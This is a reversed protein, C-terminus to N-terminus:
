PDTLQLDLYTIDHSSGLALKMVFNSRGDQKILDVTAALIQGETNSVADIILDLVLGDTLGTLHAKWSACVGEVDGIFPYVEVLCRMMEPHCPIPPGAYPKLLLNALRVPKIFLGTIDEAPTTSSNVHELYRKLVM